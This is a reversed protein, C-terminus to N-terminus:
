GSNAMEPSSISVFLTRQLKSSYDYFIIDFVRIQILNTSLNFFFHFFPPFIHECCSEFRPGEVHSDVAKVM